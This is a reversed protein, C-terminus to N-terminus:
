FVCVGQRDCGVFDFTLLGADVWVVLRLGKSLNVVATFHDLTATQEVVEEAQCLVGSECLCAVARVDELNLSVVPHLVNQLAGWTEGGENLRCVTALVPWNIGVRSGSNGPRESAIDLALGACDAHLSNGLRLNGGSDVILEVVPKPAGENDAEGDPKHSADKQGQADPAFRLFLLPIDSEEGQVHGGSYTEENPTRPEAVLRARCM